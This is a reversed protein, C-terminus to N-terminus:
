VTEKGAKNYYYSSNYYSKRSLKVKNLCVGLITANVCQLLNKSKIVEDRESAESSVVMICGDTIQSLIQADTVVGLPPTDFIVYDFEKKLMNIVEKMRETTIIEAPNPSKVGATIFYLNEIDSKCIANSLEIKGALVNTLGVQNSTKLLRNKTLKRLDCDVLLTKKSSLAMMAALMYTTISKGENPMSSTITITKINKYGSIFDINTRLSRFSETLAFHPGSLTNLNIRQIKGKLKPIVGLAPLGLYTEVDKETKITTDLQEILGILSLSLIIGIFFAVELNFRINPKVPTMSLKVKDMVKINDTPYFEKAEEIFVSTLATITNAAEEKNPGTVKITLIQTDAEPIVSIRNQLEESKLNLGLRKITKESVNVTKAISAYTKVLKQYLMLDNYELKGGDTFYSNGIIISTKAEYEPKVIYLSYVLTLITIVATLLVIIYYRKRVAKLIDKLKLEIDQDQKM